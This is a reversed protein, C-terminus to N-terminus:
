RISPRLVYVTISPSEHIIKQQGDLRAVTLKHEGRFVNTLAWSTQRQPEGWPEGDILLQLSEVLALPPDIDVTVTFNGPGMPITTQDAPSTIRAVLLPESVKQSPRASAKATVPPTTNLPELSLKKGEVGDPLKDTFVTNGDADQYQYVDTSAPCGVAATLLTCFVLMKTSAPSTM